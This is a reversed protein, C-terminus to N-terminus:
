RRAPALGGAESTFPVVFSVVDFTLTGETSIVGFHTVVALMFAVTILSM